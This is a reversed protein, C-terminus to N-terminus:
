RVLSRVDLAELLRNTGTKYLIHFKERKRNLQLRSRCCACGVLVSWCSDLFAQRTTFVFKKYKSLNQKILVNIVESKTLAHERKSLINNELRETEREEKQDTRQV